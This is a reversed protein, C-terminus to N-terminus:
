SLFSNGCTLCHWSREWQAYLEPFVTKNWKRQFYHVFPAILILPIFFLSWVYLYVYTVKRMPPATQQALLSMSTSNSRAQVVGARGGAWVVGTSNTQSQHTGAQFLVRFSEGTRFSLPLLDADTLSAPCCRAIGTPHHGIIATFRSAARCCICVGADPKTVAMGTRGGALM